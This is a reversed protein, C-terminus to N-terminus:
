RDHARFQSTQHSSPQPRGPWPSTADFLSTISPLLQIFLKYQTTTAPIARLRERVDPHLHWGVAISITSAHSPILRAVSDKLMASSGVDQVQSKSLLTTETASNRLATERNDRMGVSLSSSRVAVLFKQQFSSRSQDSIFQASQLPLRLLNKREPNHFTRNELSLRCSPSVRM